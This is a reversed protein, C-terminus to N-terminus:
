LKELETRLKSAKNDLRLYNKVVLQELHFKKRLTVLKPHNQDKEANRNVSAKVLTV